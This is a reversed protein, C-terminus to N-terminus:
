TIIFTHKIKIRIKSVKMAKNEVVGNKNWNRNSKPYFKNFLKCAGGITRIKGRELVYAKLDEDSEIKFEIEMQRM